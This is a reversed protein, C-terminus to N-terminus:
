IGLKPNRLWLTSFCLEPTRQFALPKPKIWLFSLLWELIQSAWITLTAIPSLFGCKEPLLSFFYTCPFIVKIWIRGEEKGRNKRIRQIKGSWESVQEKWAYIWESVWENMWETIVLIISAYLPWCFSYRWQGWPAYLMTFSVAGLFLGVCNLPIATFLSGGPVGWVTEPALSPQYIFSPLLYGPSIPLASLSLPM